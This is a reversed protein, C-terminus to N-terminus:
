SLWRRVGTVCFTAFPQELAICHCERQVERYFDEDDQGCWATSPLSADVPNKKRGQSKKNSKPPAVYKPVFDKLADTATETSKDTAHVRNAKAQALIAQIVPDNETEVNEAKRESAKGSVLDLDVLFTNRAKMRMQRLEEKRAIIAQREATNLYPNSELNYYDSELDFVKSERERNADAQLLRDRYEMAKEMNKGIASLSFPQSGDKGNDVATLRKLLALGEDNEQQIVNREAKTCVLATCFFCPGSGEQQCVVRGCSLCNGVLGHVRAQCQCPYRGPRLQKSPDFEKMVPRKGSKNKTM